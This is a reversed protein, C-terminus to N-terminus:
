SYIFENLENNLYCDWVNNNLSLTIGYEIKSNEKNAEKTGHCANGLKKIENLMQEHTIFYTKHNKNNYDCYTIIYDCDQWLRIQTININNGINPFSMKLEIEKDLMPLKFDGKNEAPLLKRCGKLQLRREFAPANFQASKFSLIALFEDIPLEEIQRCDNDFLTQIIRYNDNSVKQIIEKKIEGVNM